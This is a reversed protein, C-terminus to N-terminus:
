LTTRYNEYRSVGENLFTLFINMTILVIFCKRFNAENYEYGMFHFLDYARCVVSLYVGTMLVFVTITIVLRKFVEADNPFRHRLSIAVLGYFLYALCLALLTVLSAWGFVDAEKFYRSGFLFYNMLVMMPVMTSVMIPLDKGTYQPINVNIAM